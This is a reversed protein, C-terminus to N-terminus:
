QSQTWFGAEPQAPDLFGADKLVAQLKEGPAGALTFSKGQAAAKSRAALITQITTVDAQEIGSTDLAIGAQEALATKFRQQVDAAAKVSADGSLFLTFTSPGTM